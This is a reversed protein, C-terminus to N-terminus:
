KERSSSTLGREPGAMTSTVTSPGSPATSLGPNRPMVIGLPPLRESFSESTAGDSPLREIWTCAERPSTCAASSSRTRSTRLGAALGIASHIGSALLGV